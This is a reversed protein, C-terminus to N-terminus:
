KPCRMEEKLYSLQSRLADITAKLTSNTKACQTYARQFLSVKAELVERFRTAQMKQDINEAYFGKADNLLREAEACLFDTRALRSTHKQILNSIEDANTYDYERVIANNIGEIEEAIGTLKDFRPDLFEQEKEFNDM